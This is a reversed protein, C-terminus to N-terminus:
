QRGCRSITLRPARTKAMDAQIMLIDNKKLDHIDKDGIYPQLQSEYKSKAQENTRNHLERAKFYKMAIDDFSIVKKKHTSTIIPPQEGLRIANVTELLKQNCYNERIGESYKGVKAEKTKGNERYRIYYVKDPKSNTTTERYIVNQFRTKFRKAM